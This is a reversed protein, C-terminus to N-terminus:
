PVAALKRELEAIFPELAAVIQEHNAFVEPLNPFVVKDFEDAAVPYVGRLARTILKLSIDV